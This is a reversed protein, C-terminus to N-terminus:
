CSMHLATRQLLMKNAFLYGDLVMCGQHIITHVKWSSIGVLPGIVFQKCGLATYQIRSIQGGSCGGGGGGGKRLKGEPRSLACLM